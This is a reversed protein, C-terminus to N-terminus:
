CGCREGERTRRDEKLREEGTKRRGEEERGGPRRTGERPSRSNGPTSSREARPENNAGEARCVSVGSM